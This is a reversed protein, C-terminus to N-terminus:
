LYLDESSISQGPGKIVFGEKPWPGTLLQQIYQTSAPIVAQELNLTNAIIKTKDVLQPVPMTGSDLLGLTRYHGYMMKAIVQAQEEGYKDLAHQYEVWLNREGRLWGDTLFYASYKGSIETREKVSGLLLSICDDVRPLILEFAGVKIGQVSNGCFGMTLLVRDAEIGDLTEQLKVRLKKPTNHLGSEIWLVPHSVSTRKFAQELESELTQCAVVITKTTKVGQLLNVPILKCRASCQTTYYGDRAARTLNKVIIVYKKILVCTIKAICYM